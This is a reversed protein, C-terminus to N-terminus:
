QERKPDWRIKHGTHLAINALHTATTSRHGIEVDSIPKHRSKVCEVFNLVHSIHQESGEGRVFETRGPLMRRRQEWTPSPKEATELQSLYPTPAKEQIRTEPLIEYGRRDIFLTGETGYFEIGYGRGNPSHGNLVRNSYTLIFGPYEFTVELTDPTERNDQLYYKGGAASVAVPAETNMAWHVIDIHHTGWDTMKGGSYDWFWRFWYIFRNPNFPVKPAPGLYMDWDLGAPPASDPPKGIGYPSENSYNWTAVRSIKGIKGQRVLEVAEQYHEGSRQQTGMQVIRGYKRAAEVMKRGEYINHALPKEVYVDKGAECAMVTPLAHWHDPTAVVVVDLDKLELVRRFDSFTKARGAPQNETMKAARERNHEWVDCVAVVRVDKMLMFDRMDARGMGGVGIFATLIHDNAGLVGQSSKFFTSAGAMGAATSSVFTRRNMKM